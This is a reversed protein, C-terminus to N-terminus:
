MRPSCGAAMASCSARKAGTSPAFHSRGKWAISSLSLGHDRGVGARRRSHSHRRHAVPQRIGGHDGSRSSRVDDLRDPDPERAPLTRSQGARGRRGRFYAHAASSLRDLTAVGSVEPSLADPVSIFHKLLLGGFVYLAAGGVLGIGLNLGFTTLLVRARQAQPADRLKALANTVARSLGLDLFGFLGLLIWVISIMGYRAEGVHRLYIPITVFAVAIRVSPYLLNVIFNTKLPRKSM